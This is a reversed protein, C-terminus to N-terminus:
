RSEAHGRSNQCRADPKQQETATNQTAALPANAAEEIAFAQPKDTGVRWKPHEYTTTATRKRILEQKKAFLRGAGAPYQERRTADNAAVARLAISSGTGKAADAYQMVEMFKNFTEGMAKPDQAKMLLMMHMHKTVTDNAPADSVSEQYARAATECLFEDTPPALKRDVKYAMEWLETMAKIQSQYKMANTWYLQMTASKCKQSLMTTGRISVM